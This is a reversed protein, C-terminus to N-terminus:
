LELTFDKHADRMTIWGEVFSTKQRMETQIDLSLQEVFSQLHHAIPAETDNTFGTERFTSLLQRLSQRKYVNALNQLMLFNFQTCESNLSNLVLWCVVGELIREEESMDHLLRNKPVRELERRMLEAVEPVIVVNIRQGTAIGRMRYAGQAYDRFTMDKGLTLVAVANPVHRIDTGTTHVQDYFCFRRDLSILSDSLKISRKTKKEYIMKEDNAGLFVVGDLQLGNEILYIAVEENSMGTILAGTDILAHLPLDLSPDSKTIMKLIDVSTWDKM